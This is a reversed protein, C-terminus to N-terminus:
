HVSNWAVTHDVCHSWNGACVLCCEIWWLMWVPQSDWGAEMLHTSLFNEGPTFCVDQLEGSLEM